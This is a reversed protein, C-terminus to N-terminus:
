FGRTLLRHVSDPSIAHGVILLSTVISWVAGWSQPSVNTTRSAGSTSTVSFPYFVDWPVTFAVPPSPPTYRETQTKMQPHLPALVPSLLLPPPPSTRAGPPAASPPHHTQTFVVSLVITMGIIDIIAGKQKKKVPWMQSYM